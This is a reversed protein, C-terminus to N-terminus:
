RVLRMMAIDELYTYYSSGYYFHVAWGFFADSAYPSSSWMQDNPTEPFTTLDIALGPQSTDVLSALEKINPLRWAKGSLNAENAARQLSEILMGGFPYGSCTKGNWKMGEVCRRWTLGTQADFVEAGDKSIVYKKAISKKASNVLRIAANTKKDQEFVRGDEFYIGWMDNKNKAYPTSSWYIRSTSNPFFNSDINPNPLPMSYNVISQLEQIQPLRWNTEGCLKQANITKVFKETDSFQYSEASNKTTKVEWLLGTINDKICAWQTADLPLNEGTASIKNFSFGAHGDKDDNDFFDRGFEADQRPYTSIGCSAVNFAGDSCFTIGTDNLQGQIQAAVNITVTDFATAKKDDTVILKFILSDTKKPSIFTPAATKPNQLVVKTGKIQLWQYTKIEGDFDSSEAGALTVSASFDVNQDADANSIPKQNTAQANTTLFIATIFITKQLKSLFIM